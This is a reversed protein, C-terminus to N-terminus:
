SNINELSVEIYVTTHLWHIVALLIRRKFAPLRMEFPISIAAM